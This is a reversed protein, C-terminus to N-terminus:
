SQSTSAVPWLHAIKQLFILEALRAPRGDEPPTSKKYSDEWHVNGGFLQSYLQCENYRRESKKEFLRFLPSMM